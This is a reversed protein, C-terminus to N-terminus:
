LLDPQQDAGAVVAVRAFGPADMMYTGEWNGPASVKVLPKSGQSTM